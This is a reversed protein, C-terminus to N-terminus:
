YWGNFEGRKKWYYLMMFGILMGGLHAFHAVGDNVAGIGLSLEILVYGLVMWKAKIPVPIFMIYMERNPYLMGFALLIGYIAGSAGLTPSNVLLALSSASPDVFIQGNQLLEWGKEIIYQYEEPQYMSSYKSLMIAFVLLQVLAAGLGCSIYYFLYRRSGLTWEIIGGFMLLAFMNFFLHTFGGHLFMYTILQWAGFGPSSVYHLACANVLRMYSTEPVIAMLVWVVVNIILLNKTVPPLQRLMNGLMIKRQKKNDQLSLENQEWQGIKTRLKNFFLGL